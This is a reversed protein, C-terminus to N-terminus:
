RSLIFWVFTVVELCLACVHTSVVSEACAEGLTRWAIYRFGNGDFTPRINELEVAVTQLNNFSGILAFFDHCLTTHKVNAARV